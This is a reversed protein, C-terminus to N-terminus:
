GTPKGGLVAPVANLLLLGIYAGFVAAVDLPRVTAFMAAFMAATLLYKGAEGKYLARIVQPASRAGRYRFVQWTFWAQPLLFVTGGLLLSYARVTDWVSTLVVVAFLLAAQFVLRRFVPPRPIDQRGTM